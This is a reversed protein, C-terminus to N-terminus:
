GPVTRRPEWGLKARATVARADQDLLLADAFAHGFRERTADVADAVVGDDGHVSRAIEGVPPGTTAALLRGWGRGCEIVRVYLDALDDAHVWSWRQRGDGILRRRRDAARPGDLLAELLGPRRGHVIGPAIVTASAAGSLLRRESAIRWAVLDAPNLPSDDTITGAGYIWTGSTLVIPHEAEATLAATVFTENAAEPHDQPAAAHIAAESQAILVALSEADTLSVFVPEGGAERVATASQESRVVATVRHGRALVAALVASGVAGTAGTVMVRM